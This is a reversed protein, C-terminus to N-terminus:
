KVADVIDPRDLTLYAARMVVSRYRRVEDLPLTPLSSEADIDADTKKVAPMDSGKSEQELGLEKILVEIHRQDSEIEIAPSTGPVYRLVRNLFVVERLDEPGGGPVRPM